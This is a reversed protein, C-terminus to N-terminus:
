LNFLYSFGLQFTAIRPNFENTLKVITNNPILNILPDNVAYNDFVPGLQYSLKAFTVFAGDNDSYLEYNYGINIETLTNIKSNDFDVSNINSSLPIGYTFGLSVGSISIAPSFSLFTLNHPYKQNTNGDNINFQYNSYLIDFLFSNSYKDEEKFFKYKTRIGFDPIQAFGIDNKRGEVPTIANFGVKYALIFGMQFNDTKTENESNDGPTEDSIDESIELSNADLYTENDALNINSYLLNYNYIFLIVIVSILKISIKISNIM